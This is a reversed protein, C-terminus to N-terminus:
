GPSQQLSSVEVCLYCGPKFRSGKTESSLDRVKLSRARKKKIFKRRRNQTRLIKEHVYFKEYAVNQLKKM